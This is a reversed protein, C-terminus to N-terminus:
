STSIRLWLTGIGATAQSELGKLSQVNCLLEPWSSDCRFALAKCAVKPVPLLLAAAGSLRHGHMQHESVGVGAANEFRMLLTDFRVNVIVVAGDELACAVTDLAPSPEICVPASGWGSFIYHRAVTSINWLHVTGDVCGVLIKNLYTPPHAM